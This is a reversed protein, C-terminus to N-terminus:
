IPPVERISRDTKAAERLKAALDADETECSTTPAYGGGQRRIPHWQYFSADKFVTKATTGSLKAFRFMKKRAAYGKPPYELPDGGAAEFEELTPGDTRLGETAQKPKSTGSLKEVLKAKPAVIAVPTAPGEGPVVVPRQETPVAPPQTGAQVRRFAFPQVTSPAPNAM